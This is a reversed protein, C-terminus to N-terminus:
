SHAHMIPQTDYMCSSESEDMDIFDDTFDMTFTSDPDPIENPPPPRPPFFRQAELTQWQVFVYTILLLKGFM